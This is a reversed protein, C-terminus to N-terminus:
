SVEMDWVTRNARMAETMAMAYPANKIDDIRLFGAPFARMSSIAAAM